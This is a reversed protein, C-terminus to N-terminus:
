CYQLYIDGNEGGTPAESGCTIAKQLANIQTQISSTVESLYGIQQASAGGAALKGDSDTVLAKGATLSIADEKGELAEELEPLHTTNLWAKVNAASEDFVAKLEAATLAPEDALAGVRATDANCETLAM